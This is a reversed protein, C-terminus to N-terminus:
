LIHPVLCSQHYGNWLLGANYPCPLMLSVQLHHCSVSVFVVNTCLISLASFLFVDPCMSENWGSPVGLVTKILGTMDATVTISVHFEALANGWWTMQHTLEKVVLFMQHVLHKVMIGNMTIAPRQLHSAGFM